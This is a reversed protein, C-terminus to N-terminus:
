NKVASHFEHINYYMLYINYHMFGARVKEFWRSISNEWTYLPKKLQLITQHVNWRSFFNGQPPVGPNKSFIRKKYLIRPYGGWSFKKLGQSCRWDIRRNFFGKYVRFFVLGRQKSFILASKWGPAWSKQGWRQANM